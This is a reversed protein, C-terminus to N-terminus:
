STDRKRLLRGIAADSFRPDLHDSLSFYVETDLPVYEGFDHAVTRQEGRFFDLVQREIRPPMRYSALV